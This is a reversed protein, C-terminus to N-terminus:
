HRQEIILSDIGNERLRSSARIATERNMVDSVVQYLEIGTTDDVRRIVKANIGAMMVEARKQDAEEPNDYSRIQLIYTHSNKQIHIDGKVVESPTNQTKHISSSEGGTTDEETATNKSKTEQTNDSKPAQVVVDIQSNTTQSKTANSDLEAGDTRFNRKPLIEYFEYETTPKTEQPLPTVDINPNVDVENRFGDFLPSLYFFVGVMVAIIAGVFMWLLSNLGTTTKAQTQRNIPTKYRKNSM